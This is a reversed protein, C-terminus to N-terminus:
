CKKPPRWMLLGNKPWNKKMVRIHMRIGNKPQKGTHKSLKKKQQAVHYVLFKIIIVDNRNNKVHEHRKLVKKQEKCINMSKSHRKIIMFPQLFHSFLFITFLLTTLLVLCSIFKFNPVSSATFATYFFLLVISMKMRILTFPPRM